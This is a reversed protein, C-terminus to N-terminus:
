DLEYFTHFVGKRVRGTSLQVFSPTVGVIVGHLPLGAKKATNIMGLQVKVSLGVASLNNFAEQIEERTLKNGDSDVLFVHTHCHALGGAFSCTCDIQDETISTFENM